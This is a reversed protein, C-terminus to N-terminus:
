RTIQFVQSTATGSGGLFGHDHLSALQERVSPDNSADVAAAGRVYHALHHNAGVSTQHDDFRVTVQSVSDTNDAGDLLPVVDDRNELSLVHSGAPYGHIGGIPAGATVVHTVHFGSGHALVSAAEMGGLSHGVLLVPDHPGIGADAMVQEIGRAYTTDEGAIVHLDAALDRADSDQSFPTTAMDDTGPLYVIHRVSGDEEHLTQVEVTGQDAPRDPTSLDNTQALHLVLGALDDPPRDGLPVSLDARRRVHPPGEPPYFAALDSAADATTAHFPRLGVLPALAPLLPAGAILGDLLGGSGDAVHQTVAPHKDLWEEPTEGEARGIAQTEGDLRSRVDAPLHDRTLSVAPVAVVGLALICPAASSVAYGIDFCVAHDLARLSDAVLRDCAEFAAVTARVLLADTECELSSRVAGHVGGAAALVRGEAEAFTLPSLVASELLDPDALVKEDAVAWDRLRDGAADLRDALAQVAAYTAATGAIGGTVGVIPPRSVVHGDGM